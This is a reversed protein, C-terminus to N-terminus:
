LNEMFMRDADNLGARTQGQQEEDENEGPEDDTAQHYAPFLIRNYYALLDEFADYDTDFVSEMLSLRGYYYDRYNSHESSAEFSSEGSLVFDISTVAFALIQPTVERIHWTNARPSRAKTSRNGDAISSPGFFILRLVRLICSHRYFTSLDPRHTGEKFTYQFTQRLNSVEVMKVRKSKDTFDTSAIGFIENHYQTIEYVIETRVRRLGEKFKKQFWPKTWHKGADAPMHFLIERIMDVPKPVRFRYDGWYLRPDKDAPLAEEADEQEQDDDIEAIKQLDKIIEPLATLVRHSTLFDSDMFPMHLVATRRGAANAHSKWEDIPRKESGGPGQGDTSNQNRQLEDLQEKMRSLEEDKRQNEEQLTRINRNLQLNQLLIQALQQDNDEGDSLTM